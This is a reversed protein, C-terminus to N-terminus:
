DLLFYIMSIFYVGVIDLLSQSNVIAQTIVPQNRKLTIFDNSKNSKNHVYGSWLKGPLSGKM